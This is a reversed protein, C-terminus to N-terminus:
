HSLALCSRCIGIYTPANAEQKLMGLLQTAVLVPVTRTHQSKGQTSCTAVRHLCANREDGCIYVELGAKDSIVKGTYDHGWSGDTYSVGHDRRPVAPYTLSNKYMLSKLDTDWYLVRHLYMEM